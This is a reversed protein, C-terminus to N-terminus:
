RHRRLTAESSAKSRQNGGSWGLLVGPASATPQQLYGGPRHLGIRVLRSAMEVLFANVLQRGAHALQSDQLWKQHSEGVITVVAINEYGTLAAQSSGPAGPQFPDGHHHAVRAARSRELFRQHLVEVALIQIGEFFRRCILPEYLLEAVGLLPDGVPDATAAATHGIQQPQELQRGSHLLQDPVTEDRGPLGLHQQRM